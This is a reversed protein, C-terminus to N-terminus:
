LEWYMVAKKGTRLTCQLLKNFWYIGTHSIELMDEIEEETHPSLRTIVYGEASPLTTRKM